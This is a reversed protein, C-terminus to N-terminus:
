AGPDDRAVLGPPASGGGNRDAVKASHMAADARRVLSEFTIDEDGALAIGISATVVETAGALEYPEAFRAALRRAVAAVMDADREVALIAVFEDGGVRACTDTDRVESRLRDAFQRLLEDGVARGHAENIGELRDLDIFLVVVQEGTRFRRALAVRCRDEALSRKPLGTLDDHLAQYRMEGLLRAHEFAVVAQDALGGLRAVIDPREPAPIPSAFTVTAVALIQGRAVVPVVAVENTATGPALLVDLPGPAEGDPVPRVLSIEGFRASRPLAEHSDVQDTAAVALRRGESDRVDVRVLTGDPSGPLWVAAQDGGVAGPLVRCLTHAVGERDDAHSLASAFSLLAAATDRDRRATALSEVIRIASGAFRAHSRLIRRDVSRVGSGPAFVAVLHGYVHDGHVVEVVAHHDGLRRGAEVQDALATADAPDDFGVEHVRRETEGTLRVALVYRPAGVTLSVNAVVRDLVQDVEHADVLRAAMRHQMELQELASYGRVARSRPTHDPADLRSPDPRWSVRIRCAPAGRTQCTLEAATGLNGFLSPLSSFYGATFGCAFTEPEVGVWRAELLVHSDSSERVTMERGVSMRAAYDAMVTCAVEPSGCSYILEAVSGGLSDRFVQEGTRRGIDRDGTIEVAASVLPRFEERPWWRDSRTLEGLDAVDPHRAVLQDLGRAGLATEVYGLLALAITPSVRGAGEVAPDSVGM